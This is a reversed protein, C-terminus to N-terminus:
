CDVSRPRGWAVQPPRHSLSLTIAVRYVSSTLAPFPGPILSPRSWAVTGAAWRNGYRAGALGGSGLACFPPARHGGGRVAREVEGIALRAHEAGTGRGVGPGVCQQADIVPMGTPLQESPQEGREGGGGVRM